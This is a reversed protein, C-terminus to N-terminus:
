GDFYVMHYYDECIIEPFLLGGYLLLTKQTPKLIEDSVNIIKEIESGTGSFWEFFM